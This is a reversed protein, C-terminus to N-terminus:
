IFKQKPITFKFSSGEGIKSEVWIRGGNKEVFEKCMILGLGTGTEDKTGKTTIHSDLRFLKDLVTEEIGVGNDRIIIEIESGKDEATITVKGGDTTFKIANSILNRLVTLIMNEDAFVIFHESCSYALEINKKQANLNHLLVNNQILQLLNINDPSFPITGMQQRSWDLLSFLLNLTKKSESYVLQIFEKKEVESFFDYDTVMMEVISSMAGMPGKLDHAIISFFKDKTANLERLKKESIILEDEIKKKERLSEIMKNFAISFDGLFHVKQNLDGKAVQQTQWTLHKLNSHLAKYSSSILNKAPPIVDLNGEALSNIFETSESYKKIFNNVSQVLESFEKNNEDHLILLEPIEGSSLSDFVEKLLTLITPSDAM